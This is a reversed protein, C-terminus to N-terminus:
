WFDNFYLHNVFKEFSEGLPIFDNEDGIFPLVGFQIKENRNDIIFMENGGDCGIYILWPFFDGGYMTTYERIKEIQIFIVYAEGLKGDYGNTFLLFDVYDKPLIISFDQEIKKIKDLNAPPYFINEKNYDNVIPKDSFYKKILKSM